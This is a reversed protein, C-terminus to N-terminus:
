PTQVFLDYSDHLDPPLHFPEVFLKIHTSPPVMRQDVPNQCMDASEHDGAPIQLKTNMDRKERTM